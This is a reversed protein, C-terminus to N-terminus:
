PAAEVIARIARRIEDATPWVGKAVAACSDLKRALDRAIRELEVDAPTDHCNNTWASEIAAETKELQTM